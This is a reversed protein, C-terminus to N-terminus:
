FDTTMPTMTKTGTSRSGTVFVTGGAPLHVGCPLTHRDASGHGGADAGNTFGSRHRRLRRHQAHYLQLLFRHPGGDLLELSPRRQLFIFGAEGTGRAYLGTGLAAWMVPLRLDRRMIGGHQGAVRPSHFAVPEIDCFAYVGPRQIFLVDPRGTGALLPAAMECGARALG